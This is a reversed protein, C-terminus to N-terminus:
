TKISDYCLNLFYHLIKSTNVSFHVFESAYMVLKGQDCDPQEKLKRAKAAIIATQNSESGSGYIIGGGKSQDLSNATYDEKFYFCAPLQMMSALWNSMKIELETNAPNFNWVCGRENIAAQVNFTENKTLKM